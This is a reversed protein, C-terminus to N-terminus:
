LSYVGRAKKKFAKHKSLAMNVQAAFSKKPKKILKKKLIADKIDAAKMPEGAEQLVQQIAAPITM